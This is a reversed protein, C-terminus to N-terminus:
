TTIPEGSLAATTASIHGCGQVCPDCVMFGGVVRAPLEDDRIDLLSPDGRRFLEGDVHIEVAHDVVIARAERNGALMFSVEPSIPALAAGNRKEPDFVRVSEPNGDVYSFSLM